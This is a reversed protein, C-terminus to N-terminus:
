SIAAALIKQTKREVHKELPLILRRTDGGWSYLSPLSGCWTRYGKAQRANMCRLLSHTPRNPLFFPTLFISGLELGGHM